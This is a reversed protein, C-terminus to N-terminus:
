LGHQRTGINLVHGVHTNVPHRTVRASSLPQDARLLAPQRVVGEPYVTDGKTVAGVLEEVVVPLLQPLLIVDVPVFENIIKSTADM